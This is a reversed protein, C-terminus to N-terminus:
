FLDLRRKRDFKPHPAVLLRWVQRGETRRSEREAVSWERRIRRCEERIEIPSPLYPALAGRRDIM